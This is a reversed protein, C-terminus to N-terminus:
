EDKVTITRKVFNLREYMSSYKFDPVFLLMNKDRNLMAAVRGMTGQSSIIHNCTACLYLDMYGKDSGNVSVIYYEKEEQILPVIRKAVWEPEDSFFFFVADDLEKYNMCKLFFKPTLPRYGYREQAMDGRRVHVAVSKYCQKIRNYIAMNEDNLIREPKELVFNVRYAEKLLTDPVKYGYGDLMLPAAPVETVDLLMDNDLNVLFLFFRMYILTRIKGAKKFHLNPFMKLLDFNRVYKGDIDAGNREYWSLDFLVRCGTKKALAYGMAYQYMQSAIGGDIKVIYIRGIFLKWWRKTKDLIKIIISKM